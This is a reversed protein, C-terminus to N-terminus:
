KIDLFNVGPMSSRLDSLIKEKKMLLEGKALPSTNIKIFGGKFLINQKEIELNTNKYIVSAIEGLVLDGKSVMKVFKDLFKNIHNFDM